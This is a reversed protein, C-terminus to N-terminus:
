TEDVHNYRSDGAYMDFTFLFDQIVMQYFLKVRVYNM